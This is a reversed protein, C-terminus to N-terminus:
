ISRLEKILEYYKMLLTLTDEKVTRGKPIPSLSKVIERIKIKLIPDKTGKEISKFEKTATELKHNVFERLKATSGAASIFERLIEKQDLTLSSYKKNFKELLIKYTLLKLDKDYASYEEILSKRVSDETPTTNTLYELVTTKNEVIQSPNVLTSNNQAELMCYLGALTKYESIKRSFFSDVSYHKKIESILNYKAEKLKKQNLKSSIQTITSLISEAKDRGVGKNTIVFEYLKYEKSLLSSEKFYRRLIQIAPSKVNKITDAAIQNVLFEYLLGTNKYKSHKIRM